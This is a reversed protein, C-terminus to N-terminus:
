TLSILGRSLTTKLFDETAEFFAEVHNEKRMLPIVKTCVGMGRADVYGYDRLISVITPNRPSRQGAKIKEITM